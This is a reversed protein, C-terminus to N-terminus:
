SVIQKFNKETNSNQCINQRFKGAQLNFGVCTTSDKDHMCGSYGTTSRTLRDLRDGDKSVISKDSSEKIGDRNIVGNSINQLSIEQNNHALKSQRGASMTRTPLPAM